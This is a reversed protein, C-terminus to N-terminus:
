EVFTVDCERRMSYDGYGLRYSNPIKKVLVKGSKIDVDILECDILHNWCGNPTTYCGSNDKIMVPIIPKKKEPVPISKIAGSIAKVFAQKDLNCVTYLAEIAEYQEMTVERKALTEFEEKMM